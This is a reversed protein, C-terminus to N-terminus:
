PLPGIAYLFRYTPVYLVGNAASLGGCMRSVLRIDSAQVELQRGHKLIFFWGRSNCVYVHGNAVLTSSWLPAGADFSWYPKGTEADVCHVKGVVDTAYILGDAVSVTGVSRGIDEYQWVLGTKTVDGTGTADVCALLGPQPNHTWDQGLAFYVKNRVCVPNGIFHNGGVRQKGPPRTDFLWIKRLKGNQPQPDLAYCISDPGGFLLQPRANVFGIAPNSWNGHALRDGQPGAMKEDDTAVLKGTNKDLALLSPADPTECRRHQYLSLGSNVFVLDGFILPSCAYADHPYIGLNESVSFRWIIDGCQENVEYGEPPADGRMYAAEDVFPGDNGDAMGNMDLCLVENRNSVVYARNGEITASSCIGLYDQTNREMAVHRISLRWLLKGTAEELCAVV